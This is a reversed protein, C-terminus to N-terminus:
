KDDNECTLVASLISACEALAVKAQPLSGMSLFAHFMDMYCSTRVAVGSRRLKEAYAHGEDRLPDFGATLVFAPPLNSHDEADLINFRPDNAQDDPIYQSHYWRLVEKTLLLGESYLERSPTMNNAYTSPYILLQFIPMPGGQDRNLMCTVTALNAGASDGGIAIKNPDIQLNRANAVVWLFTQQTDEVPAPFPFEPALRYEVSIIVINAQEALRAVLNDYSDVTGLVFGGGHYYVLAPAIKNGLNSPRYIRAAIAGSTTPITIGERLVSVPNDYDFPNGKCKRYDRAEDASMSAVSPAAHILNLIKQAEPAISPAANCNESVNGSGRPIDRLTESIKTSSQINKSSNNTM